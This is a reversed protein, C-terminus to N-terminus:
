STARSTTSPRRTCPRPSARRSARRPGTGGRDDPQDRHRLRRGGRVERHRDQGDRHRGRRRLRPHRAPWTFNPPDFVATGELMPEVGEPLAHAHWASAALEPITRAKDPAGQVRFAGDTWELDDEAVELEHAAITAGQRQVKELATAIRRAASRSRGRATRTWASRALRRHRRAPGRRRGATVGLGDAVIQSWATEHGQGHPSTGTRVVVKGDPRCEIEAADWGGAVYRLAGLIKSPALGCMEIYTSLGIGLQKVDGRTARPGAAGQADADYDALELARDFTPEYNARTSSLGMISQHGRDFPPM